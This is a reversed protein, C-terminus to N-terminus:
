RLEKRISNVTSYIKDIKDRMKLLVEFRIGDYFKHRKKYYNQIYVAQNLNNGIRYCDDHIKNLSDAFKNDAHIRKNISAMSVQHNGSLLWRIVRAKTCGIKDATDALKKYESTNLRVHIDNDKNYKARKRRKKM